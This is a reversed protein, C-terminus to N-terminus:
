QGNSGYEAMLNYWGDSASEIELTQIAYATIKMQPPASTDIAAMKEKTLNTKILIQDDKLVPYHKDVASHEVLRYYVGDFGGLLTWGDALTYTVYNDLNNPRELKVYVYCEESGGKVTVLPDKKVATGPTMRYDEGTTETLTLTVDGVTFTNLLPGAHSSFYALTVGVGVALTCIMAIVCLLLKKHKM